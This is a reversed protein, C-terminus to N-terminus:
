LRALIVQTGPQLMEEHMGARGELFHGVQDMAASRGGLQHGRDGGLIRLVAGVTGARAAAALLESKAVPLAHRGFFPARRWWEAAVAGVFTLLWGSVCESM